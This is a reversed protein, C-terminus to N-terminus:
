AASEATALAMVDEQSAGRADVEGVTRGERMVVIRDCIQLLEPLDSSIVLVALGQAVLGDVLRYVEERAGVDVGRTPEDLVLVSLQRRMLRALLAKQQNGGSLNAIPRQIDAARVDFRECDARAAATRARDDLLGRRVFEDLSAFTVNEAVSLGALLGRGKRDETLYGLGADLAESPHRFGVPEGNLRVSGARPSGLAGYLCLGVSTRGAGVLGAMGVVEGRRLEFSASSFYPPHDLGEVALAVPGPEQRPRPQREALERGVMWRVLQPPSLGALEACAVTAGDRLVTVRDALSFIEELRHSIYVIGLGQSRLGLITQFLHQLEQDTLTASPEDFVIVKADVALARAVEVLQQLGVSLRGVAVSPDVDLGLRQLLGRAVRAMDRRRLLGNSTPERGLFINETVSLEPVLNFEQYIISIGRQSMALPDGLPLPQGDWELSGADPAVAGDLVGVLTSKGAGNEGVLAHVEGPQVVLDVGDLARVGPYTKVIGQARLM